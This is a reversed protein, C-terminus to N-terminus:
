VYVNFIGIFEIMIKLYDLPILVEETLISNCNFVSSGSSITTAPVFTFYFLYTVIVFVVM